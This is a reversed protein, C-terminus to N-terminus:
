GRPTLTLLTAEPRCCFRVPMYPSSGLGASVNLWTTEGWRSLGRARSRDIGCNTVLAGIGPLRVQGGHTHGALVLDYGDGAFADLVRPEPSHAVGIRVVADPDAPGAIDAYRDRHLHPDDVGALAIRQGRIELAQTRNSLDVWGRETLAARLDRWPLPPSTPLRPARVFYRHPSKPRPAFYDNNGFVFAGPVDLLGGFAHVAVPVSRQHSLTDGTDIVLDPRLDSLARVWAVKRQQDPTVHLDSLHLVRVPWSGPRLVPVEVRRLVFLQREVLTAYLGVAAGAGALGSLTGVVPGPGRGRTPDAM